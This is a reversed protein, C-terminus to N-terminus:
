SNVSNISAGPVSWLTRGLNPPDFANNGDTEPTENGCAYRQEKKESLLISVALSKRQESNGVGVLTVNVFAKLYLIGINM